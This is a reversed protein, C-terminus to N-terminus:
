FDDEWDGQYGEIEFGNKLYFTQSLIYGSEFAIHYEITYGINYKSYIHPSVGIKENNFIIYYRYGKFYSEQTKERIIGKKIVKFKNKIDKRLLIIKRFIFYSSLVFVLVLLFFFLSGSILAYLIITLTLTFLILYLIIRNRIKTIDQLHIPQRESKTHTVQEFNHYISM